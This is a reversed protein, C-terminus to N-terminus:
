GTPTMSSAAAYDNVRTRGILALDIEGSSQRDTWYHGAMSQVTEGGVRLVGGGLHVPSRNQASHRPENRYVWTVVYQEPAEEAVNAALSFSQSEPSLLRLHLTSFTQRIVMFVEVAEGNVNYNSSKSNPRLTGKWTGRLDPRGVLSHIGPWRWAWANFVFLLGVLVSVVISLPAFFSFPIVWGNHALVLAWLGSAIVVVVTM